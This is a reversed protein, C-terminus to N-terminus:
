IMWPYSLIKGNQAAYRESELKLHHLFEGFNILKEFVKLPNDLPDTDLLVESNFKTCEKQANIYRASKIWHIKKMTDDKNKVISDM